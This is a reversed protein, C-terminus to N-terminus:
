DAMARADKEVRFCNGVLLRDNDYIVDPDFTDGDVAGGDDIFYYREHAKPKWYGGNDVEDLYEDPIRALIDENSILTYITCGDDNKKFLEGKSFMTWDRNLAYTKM